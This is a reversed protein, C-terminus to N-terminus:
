EMVYNKLLYIKGDCEVAEVKVTQEQTEPYYRSSFVVEGGNVYIEVATTDALVRISEIVGSPVHAKRVKRGAGAKESLTLIVDGDQYELFLNEGLSVKGQEGKVQVDLDFPGNVPIEASSGSVSVGAKRLGNLEQAPYQYLMGNKYTVERPVTLCHQWGESEATPNVYEEDADPMGMWGILIRRGKGDQFTQPAYFDFGHDWERFAKEEPKGDKLIFYGSQYINQFRYEERTLGQPSVSLVEQDGLTFFDPCEWMYGFTNETTLDRDFTWNKLDESKYFLVAGKDGKQRGGLIMHYEEGDKWVKPDRIHCTYNEPYDTWSIAEEKTGFRIGDESEVHLTSSCRGNNIYDYDGDMKVNGTYFLHLKNEEALASGSYVGHCDYVSDPLLPVGEYRWNIMDESSYHGWFKLGGNAEFPSYQFFVHYRGKYWCLGNPDNLWGTPPMLHHTLRSKQMAMGVAATEEIKRVEEALVKTLSSM